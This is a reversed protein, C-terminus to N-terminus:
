TLTIPAIIPSFWVWRKKGCDYLRRAGMLYTMESETRTDTKVDFTDVVGHEDLRDQLARRQYHSKPLTGIKQSWVVYDPLIDKELTFGLQAYVGGTFYRNDSFSKVQKPNHEAVFASFLRSAGGLVSIRTAYRSLTWMRNKGSPGRDNNGFTFRMCAVLKGKWYLGYHHGNGAGGQLHYKEFFKKADPHPVPQVHCKRAMLKGRNKGLVNRILRRVQSGREAWEQEYVTLLRIGKAVCSAYKNYHNDKNKLNSEADGYSHWYMGCFELALNHAPLYIDLEKPKLVSRNRRVVPAFISIFKALADEPASKMNNCKTCGMKGALHNVPSQTFEGHLPCEIAIKSTLMNAFQNLRYTFRGKHVETARTIFHQISLQKASRIRTGKCKPCGQKGRYHNDPTQCFVGHAKCIIRVPLKYGVFKVDAYDYTDGHIRQFREVWDVGKGACLPCGSGTLHNQIHQTFWQHDPCSIRIHARGGTFTSIDYAYKNNHVINAKLIYHQPLLPTRSM